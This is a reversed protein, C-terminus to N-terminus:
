IKKLKTCIYGQIAQWQIKMFLKIFNMYNLAVYQFYNKEKYKTSIM